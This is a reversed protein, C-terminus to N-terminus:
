RSRNTFISDLYEIRTLSDLNAIKENEGKHNNVYVVRYKVKEELIVTVSDIYTARLSDVIMYYDIDILLRSIEQDYKESNDRITNDKSTLSHVAICLGIMLLLIIIEKYHKLM